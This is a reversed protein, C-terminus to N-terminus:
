AVYVGEQGRTGVSGALRWYVRVGGVVRSAM